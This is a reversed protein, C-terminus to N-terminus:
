IRGEYHLQGGTSDLYWFWFLLLFLVSSQPSGLFLIQQSTFCSHISIEKCFSPAIFMIQNCFVLTCITGTPLRM